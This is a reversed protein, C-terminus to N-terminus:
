PSDSSSGRKLVRHVQVQSLPKGRRSLIGDACLAAAIQRETLKDARLRAITAIVAQEDERPELVGDPRASYGYPIGGIRLGARKMEALAARTRARIMDREVEAFLDLIGRLMRGEVGEGGSQGDASVLKGGLARAQAEIAGTVLVGRAIRDRKSVVLLGARLRRLDSLAALLGPRKEMATAGTLGQDAHWAAVTAGERAAWEEISTRQAEPGLHQEERSVRLYAVALKPDGARARRPKV